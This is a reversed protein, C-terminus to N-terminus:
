GRRAPVMQSVLDMSAKQGLLKDVADLRTHFDRVNQTAKMIPGDPKLLDTSIAAHQADVKALIRNELGAQGAAAASSRAATGAVARAPAFDEPLLPAAAQGLLLTRHVTLGNAVTERLAQLHPPPSAPALGALAAQAHAIERHAGLIGQDRARTHVLDLFTGAAPELETGLNAAFQTTYEAVLSQEVPMFHTLIWPRIWNRFVIRVNGVAMTGDPSTPNDDRKVFALVSATEDTWTLATVPVIPTYFLTPKALYAADLYHRMVPTDKRQYAERIKSFVPALDTSGPTTATLITQAVTRAGVTTGLVGAVDKHQAESLTPAHDSRLLVHAEGQANVQVTATRGSTGEVSTFGPAPQLTGWVTVFDIWPRTAANSLDLPAGKLDSIRAVIEAAEGIAYFAGTSSVDVRRQRDTLAAALGELAAVRKVVDAFQGEDSTLQAQVKGIKDGYDATEAKLRADIAAILGNWDQARILEGDVKGAFDLLDAM